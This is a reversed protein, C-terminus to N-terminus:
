AIQVGKMQPEVAAEGREVTDTLEISRAIWAERAEGLEQYTGVVEHWRSLLKELDRLTRCEALLKKFDAASM